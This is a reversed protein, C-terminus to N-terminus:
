TLLALKIYLLLIKREILFPFGLLSENDKKGAREAILIIYQVM